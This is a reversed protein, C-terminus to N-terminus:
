GTSERYWVVKVIVMCDSAIWVHNLIEFVKMLKKVFEIISSSHGIAHHSASLEKEDQHATSWLNECDFVVEHM